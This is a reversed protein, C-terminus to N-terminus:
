GRIPIHAVAEIVSRDNAKTEQRCLYRVTASNPKIEVSRLDVGEIGLAELATDIASRYIETPVPAQMTIKTLTDVSVGLDVLGDLIAGAAARNINKSSESLQEYPVMVEEGSESLRSATGSARKGALYGGHSKAALLEVLEDRTAYRLRQVM